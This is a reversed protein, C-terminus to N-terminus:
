SLGQFQSRDIRGNLFAQFARALLAPKEMDNLRDLLLLLTEGVRKREKSSSALRTIQAQREDVPVDDLNELFRLLKKAFLRDRITIVASAASVITGIIPIERVVGDDLVSDLGVEAFQTAVDKLDTRAISEILSNELGEERNEDQDSKM